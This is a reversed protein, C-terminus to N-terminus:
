PQVSVKVQGNTWCCQFGTGGEGSYDNATVHLVYEGPESFTVTTSANGSFPATVGKREAREVTPRVVEPRDPSFVVSGTGRYKIWRLTVPAAMNRPRAGSSTTFKADDSVWVTLTLPTGLKATREVTLGQPGQVSPGNEEFGLVPPTNGVAAEVLPSIEYDPKLSAPIVTTQGNAVITWTLKNDGFDAPVKIAFLGWARGPLFHTPQGRDPGGPQQSGSLEIRNAAGIPLDVEQKQNRNYYGLLLSFSGDPNKFWGEFAGTVSAGSEHAPELPLSQAWALAGAAALIAASIRVKAALWRSRGNTSRQGPM